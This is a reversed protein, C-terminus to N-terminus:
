WQEGVDRTGMKRGKKTKGAQLFFTDIKYPCDSPPIHHNPFVYREHVEGAFVAGARRL